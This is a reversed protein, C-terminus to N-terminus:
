RALSPDWREDWGVPDTNVHLRQRRGQLHVLSDCLSNVCHWLSLSGCLRGPGRSVGTVADGWAPSFLPLTTSGIFRHAWFM